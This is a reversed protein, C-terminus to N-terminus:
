PQGYYGRPMDEAEIQQPSLVPIDKKVALAALFVQCTEELYVAASLAQEICNGFTIAGHQKLIVARAKGVYEVASIGMGVDSSITFPAVLVKAHIEDVMTTSIVPLEDAVLSVAVAQPQHTHLVVNVEPMHQFIYLIARLDSTPRRSGEVTNGETNVLVIDDPTMADYSMASPTVLFTGHGMRRSANGGSLTVLGHSEMQQACEILEQREKEYQM